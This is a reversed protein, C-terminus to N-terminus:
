KYSRANEFCKRVYENFMSTKHTELGKMCEGNHMWVFIEYVHIDRIILIHLFMEIEVKKKNKLM